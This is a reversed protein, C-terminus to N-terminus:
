NNEELIDLFIDRLHNRFNKMSAYCHGLIKKNIRPTNDVKRYRTNVYKELNDMDTILQEMTINVKDFPISLDNDIETNKM